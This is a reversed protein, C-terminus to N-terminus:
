DHDGARREIAEMDDDSFGFHHGIEHILVHTVITELTEGNEAWWDLIPRRYLWIRNPMQGTAAVAGRQPLGTGQFLGLIDFPSELDMEEVVEDDPFEAVAITVDGTLRRFEPPLAAHAAAALAEFTDLDPAELHAWDVAAIM